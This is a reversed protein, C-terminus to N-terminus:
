PRQFLMAIWAGKTLTTIHKWNKTAAMAVIDQEDEILLGSLIVQGNAITAKDLLDFNDQIINKNINAIVIDFPEKVLATDAKAITIHSCHNQEINEKSNEICWDDNDVALINVGGLREALIALIGTGTGFDFVTNNNFSITQMLQMVSYTTAHHGTGFSMKPTIIIEHTVNQIPAHFHARIGVFNDVIVPQFNSEWVENWNQQQILQHTFNLAHPALLTTIAGAHFLDESIYALVANDTQEFGDYNMAALEAILLEQVDANETAISIQIHNM